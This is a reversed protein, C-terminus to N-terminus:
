VYQCVRERCSARGIKRQFIPTYSGPIAATCKRAPDNADIDKACLLVFPSREEFRGLYGHFLAYGLIVFQKDLIFYFERIALSHHLEEHFFLVNVRRRAGSCAHLCSRVCHSELIFLSSPCTAM